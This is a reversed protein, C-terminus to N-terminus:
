DYPPGDGRPPEVHSQHVDSLVRGVLVAGGIVSRIAAARPHDHLGLGDNSGDLEDLRAGATSM